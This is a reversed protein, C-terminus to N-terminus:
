PRFLEEASLGLLKALYVKSELAGEGREATFVTSTQVKGKIALQMQTCGAAKRAKRLNRSAVRHEAALAARM